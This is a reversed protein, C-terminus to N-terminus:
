WFVLNHAPELYQMIEDPHIVFDGSLAVIARLIFATVLLYPLWRWSSESVEQPHLYTEVIRNLTGGISIHPTAKKRVATKKTTKKTAM